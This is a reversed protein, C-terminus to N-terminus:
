VFRSCLLYFFEVLCYGNLPYFPSSIKATSKSTRYITLFNDFLRSVNVGRRWIELKCNWDKRRSGSIKWSEPFTLRSIKWRSSGLLLCVGLKPRQDEWILLTVSYNKWFYNQSKHWLWNLISRHAHKRKSRHKTIYSYSVYLISPWYFLFSIIPHKNLPWLCLIYDLLISFLKILYPIYFSNFM